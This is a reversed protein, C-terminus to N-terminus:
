IPTGEPMLGQYITLYKERTKKVVDEPLEPAPPEHNWKAVNDLWDRVYQKDFSEQPRGPEYSDAPWFRSSDPTFVEDILTLKRGVFGFEFKTDVIIIGRRRAYKKARQYLALSKALLRQALLDASTFRKIDPHELLWLTLHNVMEDYTLNIDHGETAKTAPTFIPVPLEESEQLNAPLEHGLVQGRPLAEQYAQWLSGSIYGRVVCEVPIVEAKKVLMIRGELIDMKQSSLPALLPFCEYGDVSVLHNPVVRKLLNMWFASLQNLIRGKDPIGTPLVVDYASIRDTSVILLEKPFVEFIERVKGSRKLFGPIEIETVVNKGGM